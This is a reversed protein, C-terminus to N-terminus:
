RAGASRRPDIRPSLVTTLVSDLPDSTRVLAYQARESLCAERAEDLFRNLAALYGTRLARPDCSLMESSELGEFRTPREFPFDLEDDDMVHLVVLDHGRRRLQSLGRRLRELDGMLDSILFVVGRKPLRAAAAELNAGLDTAPERPPPEVIDVITNLHTRHSRQPAEGRVQQDFAVCGVADNQRLLLYALVCAATSAYGHKTLPGRGYAMSASVDLLVSGRLNTDEDYQKVVMRDQRAWVKWDVHRPDDGRVYERHERFDLSQGFYPSRHMGSLFGEVVHRARVELRGLRRVTEPLAHPM